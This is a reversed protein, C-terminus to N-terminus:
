TKGDDGGLMERTRDVVKIDSIAYSVPTEFMVQAMRRAIADYDIAELEAVRARLREIMERAEGLDATLHGCETESQNLALQLRDIECKDCPKDEYEGHPCYSPVGMYKLSM